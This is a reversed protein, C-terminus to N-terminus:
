FECCRLLAHVYHSQTNKNKNIKLSSDIEYHLVALQSQGLSAPTFNLTTNYLVLFLRLTNQLPSIKITFTSCYIKPLLVCENFLYM